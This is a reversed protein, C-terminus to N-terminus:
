ASAGEKPADPPLAFRAATTSDDRRDSEVTFRIVDNRTPDNKQIGVLVKCVIARGVEPFPARRLDAVTKLGLPLLAAKARENNAPNDLTYYRWLTFGAFTAPEVVSFRLRYARKGTKTPVLEGAELRCLYSGAPVCTVGTASDFGSIDDDGPKGARDFGEFDNPDFNLKEDSM